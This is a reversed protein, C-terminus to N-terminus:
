KQKSLPSSRLNHWLLNLNSIQFSKKELVTNLCWFPSGLSTISDWGQLHELSTASPSMIQHATNTTLPHNSQIIKSAKGVKINRHYGTSFNHKWVGRVAPPMMKKAKQGKHRLKLRSMVALGEM